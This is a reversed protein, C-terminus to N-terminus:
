RQRVRRVRPLWRPVQKRYAEYEKGFRRKLGPEESLIFYGHNVVIFGLAWTGLPGSRFFLAQGLLMAAVGSIMPNRVLRYPGVAVLRRTPDWPALTGRGVRAFLVVTWSFLMLGAAFLLAGTVSGPSAGPPLRGSSGSTADSRLLAAPVLVVVAFPLLLISLVHRWIEPPRGVAGPARGVKRRGVDDPAGMGPSAM